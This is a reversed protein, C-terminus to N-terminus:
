FCKMIYCLVYYPPINNHAMSGGDNDITHSHSGTDDAVNTTTLSVAVDTASTSYGAQGTSGGHNHTPMENNTVTHLVEGGILGVTGSLTTSTRAGTGTNTNGGDSSTGNVGSASDNYPLVFRGRLDPTTVGNLDGGDCLRWGQPINSQNGGWMIISRKPLVDNSSSKVFWEGGYSILTVGESLWINRFSYYGPSNSGLIILCVNQRYSTNNNEGNNIIVISKETGDVIDSNNELYVEKGFRYTGNNVTGYRSYRVLFIDSSGSDTANNITAAVNDNPDMGFSWGQYVDISATNFEGGLYVHGDSTALVSNNVNTNSGGVKTCWDVYGDTDYKILFADYNNTTLSGYSNPYDGNKGSHYFNIFGEGDGSFSGSLYVNNASVGQIFRNDVCISPYSSYGSIFNYWQVIGNKNYKAFFTNYTNSTPIPIEFRIDDKSRTDYIYAYEGGMQVAVYFNGESDMTSVPQYVEGGVSSNNSGLRNTWLGKGNTDYKVMFLNLNSSPVTYITDYFRIDTKDVVNYVNITDTYMGSIIINGDNDCAISSKDGSEIQGYLPVSWIYKGTKDFKVVFMGRGDLFEKKIYDSTDWIQVGNNDIMYGSLYVNGNKDVVTISDSTGEYNYSEVSVNWLFLGDKDYKLVVTSNSNVYLTKISSGTNRTEFVYINGSGEDDYKVITVYSNGEADTIIQPNTRFEYDFGVHTIWVNNGVNDYKFIAIDTMSSYREIGLSGGTFNNCYSVGSTFCYLGYVNNDKDSSLCLQFENGDASIKTTWSAYTLNDYDIISLKTNVDIVDIENSITIQDAQIKPIWKGNNNILDLCDTLTVSKRLIYGFGFSSPELIQCNVPGSNKNDTIVISKEYANPVNSVDEIYINRHTNNNILGYKNYKILYCDFNGENRLIGKVDDYYGNSSVDWIYLDNEYYSGSVYVHGKRDVQVNSAYVDLDGDYVQGACTTAWQFNGNADYKALMSHIVTTEMWYEKSPLTYAIVGNSSASYFNFGSRYYDVLGNMHVYINPNYQGAIYQNDCTIVPHLVLDSGEENENAKVFTNWQYIGSHNFKV